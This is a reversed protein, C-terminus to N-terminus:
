IRRPHAGSVAQRSPPLEEIKKRVSRIFIYILDRESRWFSGYRVHPITRKKNPDLPKLRSSHRMICKSLAYLEGAVTM